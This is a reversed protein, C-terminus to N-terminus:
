KKEKLYKTKIRLEAPYEYVGEGAQIFHWIGDTGHTGWGKITKFKPKATKKKSM